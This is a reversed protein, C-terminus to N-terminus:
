NSKAFMDNKPSRELASKEQLDTLTNLLVSIIDGQQMFGVSGNEFTTKVNNLGNLAPTQWTIQGEPTEVAITRGYNATTLPTSNTM